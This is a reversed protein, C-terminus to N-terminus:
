NRNLKWLLLGGIALLVVDALWVSYPAFVGDRAMTEGTVLLPYYVGLIPLFCLFFTTVNDSTKRWMAVPIGVCAFCFCGLGNSLRRQREAQLRWLRKQHSEAENAVSDPDRGMQLSYITDELLKAERAIQAPINQLTLAAPSASNLDQDLTGLQTIQQVFPEAQWFSTGDGSEIFSNRCVVQLAGTEPNSELQAEEATLTVEPGGGTPQVTIFPEILRRGDVGKVRVSFGRMSFSKQTRLMSYATDDLSQIIIRHMNPRSWGACVDYLGFTVFSLGYTAVLVPWIIEIPNIGASKLAVIENSAAMRGFVTCIAFLLCGPITFRLMEPVFYPMMGLIIGPPLGKKLGENLGGGVVMLLVSALLCLFFIKFVEWVVYTQITRM